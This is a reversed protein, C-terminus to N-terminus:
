SLGLRRLDAPTDVDALAAALSPDDVEVTDVRALVALAREGAAYAARGGALAAASWRACAYQLRDGVRPVASGSGPWDAVVRLAAADLLPLDCALCVVPGPTGLADVGALLAALPGAGAPEERVWPLGSAGPGAEIVPDCVAALVRAARVAFTEGAVVLAAKDRGM